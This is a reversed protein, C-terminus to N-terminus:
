ATKARKRKNSSDLTAKAQDALQPIDLMVKLKNKLTQANVDYVASVDDISMMNGDACRLSMNHAAVCLVTALITNTQLNVMKESEEVISNIRRVEKVLEWSSPGRMKLKSLMCVVYDDAEINEELMSSYYPRDQLNSLILNSAQKFKKSGSPWMDFAKLIDQRTRKFNALKCAYYICCAVMAVNKEGKTIISKDKMDKWITQAMKAVRDSSINLKIELAENIEKFKHYLTRERSPMSAQQHLNRMLRSCGRGVGIMTSMSSSSLLPNIPAGHFENANYGSDDVKYHYGDDVFIQDEVVLGCRKCITCGESRDETFTTNGCDSCRPTKPDNEWYVIRGPPM